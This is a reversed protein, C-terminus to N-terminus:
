QTSKIFQSEKYSEDYAAFRSTQPKYPNSYNESQADERGKQHALGILIASVVPYIPSIFAIAILVYSYWLSLGAAICTFLHVITLFNYLHASTLRKIYFKFLIKFTSKNKSINIEM